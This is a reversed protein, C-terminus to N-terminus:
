DRQPPTGFYVNGHKIQGVAPSNDGSTSVHFTDSSSDDGALRIRHELAAASLNGRDGIWAGIASELILRDDASLGEIAAVAADEQATTDPDGPHRRLIRDLVLRGRDVVREATRRQATIVVEAAFGAAASSILSAIVTAASLLESM